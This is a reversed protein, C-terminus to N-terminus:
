EKLIPNCINCRKYGAQQVEAATRFAVRNERAINAVQNCAVSHVVKTGANGIWLVPMALYAERAKKRRVALIIVLGIIVVLGGILWPLNDRLFGIVAGAAMLALVVLVAGGSGSSRSRRSAM